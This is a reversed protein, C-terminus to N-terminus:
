QAGAQPPAGATISPAVISAALQPKTAPGAIQNARGIADPSFVTDFQNLVDSPVGIQKMQGLMQQWEGQNKATSLFLGAGSTWLPRAMTTARGQKAEMALAQQFLGIAQKHVKGEKMQQGWAKHMQLLLPAAQQLTPPLQAGIQPGMLRSVLQKLVLYSPQDNVSQLLKSGIRYQADHMDMAAERLQLEQMVGLIQKQRMQEAQEPFGTQELASQAEEPDPMQGAAQAAGAQAGAQIPATNVPPQQGTFLSALSPMLM